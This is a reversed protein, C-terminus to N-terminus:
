AWTPVKSSWPGYWLEARGQSELAIKYETKRIPVLIRFGPAWPHSSCARAAAEGHM